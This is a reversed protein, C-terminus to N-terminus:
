MFTNNELKCWRKKFTSILLTKEQVELWGEIDVGKSVLGTM